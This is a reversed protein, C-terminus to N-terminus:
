RDEYSANFAGCPNCCLWFRFCRAYCWQRETGLIDEMVADAEAQDCKEGSTWQHSEYLYDHFVWASTGDPGWSAGDSRFGAPVTLTKGRYVLQYERTVVYAFQRPGCCGGHVMAVEECTLERHAGIRVELKSLESLEEEM